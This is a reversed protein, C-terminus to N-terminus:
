EAVTEAKKTYRDRIYKFIEVLTAVLPGALLLGWFGAIYAGFVLLVIMIVPHIHLYASQVRPVLLNNELLQVVV